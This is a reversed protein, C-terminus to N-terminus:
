RAGAAAGEGARPLRALELELGREAAFIEDLRLPRLGRHLDFALDAPDLVGATGEDRWLAVLRGGAQLLDGPAAEAPWALAGAAVDVPRWDLREVATGATALHETWLRPGVLAVGQEHLSQARAAVPEPLAPDVDLQTRGVAASLAALPPALAAVVSTGAAPDGALAEAGPSSWRAEPTIAGEGAFREVRV